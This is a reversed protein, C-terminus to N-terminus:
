TATPVECWAVTVAPTRRAGRSCHSRPTASRTVRSWRRCRTQTGELAPQAQLVAHGTGQPDEQVVLVLQPFEGGLTEQIADRHEPSVVVILREAGAARAAELVYSLLPRGLVHHLVKPVDSLM